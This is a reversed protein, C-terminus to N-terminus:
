QLLLDLDQLQLQAIAGLAFFVQAAHVVRHDFSKAALRWVLGRLELLLELKGLLQVALFHLFELLLARSFHLCARPLAFFRM